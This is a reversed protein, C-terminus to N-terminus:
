YDDLFLDRGGTANVWGVEYPRVIVFLAYVHAIM